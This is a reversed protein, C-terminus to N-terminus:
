QFGGQISTIYGGEGSAGRSVTVRFNFAFGNTATENAFTHKTIAKAESTCNEWVPSDDNANNTVEVKFAADDPIVGAVSIACAKIQADADMPELLTISAANVSKTFQMTKKATAKGDTVAIELKHEGNLVKQFYDGTVAFSNNAGRTPTYSRKVDNDLTETVTLTDDADVDDVSYSVSFGSIKTGLDDASSCSIVPASNNDVTRADSITYSSEDDYSDYSKVRYQVSAVGKPVTDTYSLDAGKYMQTWNSGGDSSRELVYGSLNGDSDSANTWSVVVTEGGKVVKPVTISPPASPARNSVVTVQESTKYESETGDTTYAKVRYMVSPVGFAVKDTTGNAVGQYIQEWNTGGDISREAKYGALNEDTCAEWSIEIVTGGRIAAPISISPPAAPISGSAKELAM